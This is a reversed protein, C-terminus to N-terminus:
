SASATAAATHSTPTSADQNLFQQTAHYCCYSLLTPASSTSPAIGM